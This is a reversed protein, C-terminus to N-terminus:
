VHAEGESWDIKMKGFLSRPNPPQGGVFAADVVLGGVDWAQGAM